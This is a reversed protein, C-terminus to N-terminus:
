LKYSYKKTIPVLIQMLMPDYRCVIIKLLLFVFECLMPIVFFQLDEAEKGNLFVHNWGEHIM